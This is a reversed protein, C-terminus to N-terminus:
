TDPSLRVYDTERQLKKKEKGQVDRRLILNVFYKWMGLIYESFIKTMISKM